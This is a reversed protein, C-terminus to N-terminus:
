IEFGVGGSGIGIGIGIGFGSLERMMKMPDMTEVGDDGRSRKLEM